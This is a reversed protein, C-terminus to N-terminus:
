RPEQISIEVFIGGQKYMTVISGKKHNAANGYSHIEFQQVQELGKNETNEICVWVRRGPYKSQSVHNLWVIKHRTEVQPDM